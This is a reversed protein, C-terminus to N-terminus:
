IDSLTVPDISFYKGTKKLYAVPHTVEHEFVTLAQHDHINDLLKKKQNITQLPYIDYAMCYPLPLHLTTPILDSFYVIERTRPQLHKNASYDM